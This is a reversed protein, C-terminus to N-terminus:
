EKVVWGNKILKHLCGQAYDGVHGYGTVKVGCTTEDEGWPEVVGTEANIRGTYVDLGVINPQAPGNVDFVFHLTGSATTYEMCLSAGNTTQICHDGYFRPVVEGTLTAYSKALCKSGYTARGPCDNAVKFYHRLLYCAGTEKAATCTYAVGGTTQDFREAMEDAVISTVAEELQAYIKQASAAYTKYRYNKVVSPITLVSVVAIISLTILVEALTFGKKIM